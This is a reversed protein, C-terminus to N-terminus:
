SITATLERCLWKTDAANLHVATAYRKVVSNIAAKKPMGNKVVDAVSATIKVLDAEIMANPAGTSSRKPKKHKKPQKIKPKHPPLSLQVSIAKDSDNVLTRASAFRTSTYEEGEMSFTHRYLHTDDQKATPIIVCEGATSTEVVVALRGICLVVSTGPVIDITPAGGSDLRVQKDSFSAGSNDPIYQECAASNAVVGRASCTEGRHMHSYRHCEGCTPTGVPDFKDCPIADPKVDKEVCPKWRKDRINNYLWCSECVVKKMQEAM